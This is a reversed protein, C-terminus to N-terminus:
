TKTNVFITDTFKAGRFNCDTLNARCFIGKLNTGETQKLNSGFSLEMYLPSVLTCNTM